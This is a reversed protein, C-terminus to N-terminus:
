EKDEKFFELHEQEVTDINSMLVMFANLYNVGSKLWEYPNFLTQMTEGDKAMAYVFIKGPKDSPYDIKTVIWETDDDKRKIEDGLGIGININGWTKM